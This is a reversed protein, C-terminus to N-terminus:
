GREGKIIPKLEFQLRNIIQEIVWVWRELDHLTQPDHSIVITERRRTVLWVVVALLFLEM